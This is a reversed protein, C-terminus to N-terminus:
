VPVLRRRITGATMSLQGETVPLFEVPLPRQKVIEPMFFEGPPNEIGLLHQDIYARVAVKYDDTFRNADLADASVGPWFQGGYAGAQAGSVWKTYGAVQQSALHGAFLGAFDVAAYPRVYMAGGGVTRIARVSSIYTDESLFGCILTAEAPNVGGTEWIEVLDRALRFPNTETPDVIQFFQRSLAFQGACNFAIQLMLHETAM